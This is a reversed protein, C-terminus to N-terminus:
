ERYDDPVWEPAEHIEGINALIHNKIWEPELPLWDFIPENQVNEMKRLEFKRCHLNGDSNVDYLIPTIRSIFTRQQEAEEKNLALIKVLIERTSVWSDEDNWDSVEYIYYLGYLDFEHNIKM